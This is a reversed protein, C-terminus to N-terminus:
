RRDRILDQLYERHREALDPPGGSLGGVLEQVRLYPRDGVASAGGDLFTLLAQRILDSRRLRRKRAERDLRKRLADPLRISIQTAM